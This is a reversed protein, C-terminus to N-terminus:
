RRILDYKRKLRELTRLLPETLFYLFIVSSAAHVLDVPFGTVYYSALIKWNLDSIWTIATAFNMIGGYILLTSLFGYLSINFVTRKGRGQHFIIGAGFGILGMAFMQWPTWPGQGFLMNSLFMSLAGVMFGTEGGFAVGAIIVLAAVPKFSPLMFFMSRGAVALAALVAITVLERAQPRRGEFILFFPLMMELLMLFSIFYYKRGGFYKLGVYLTLPLLIVILAGALLVRKKDSRRSIDPATYALPSLENEGRRRRLAILIFASIVMVLYLSYYQAESVGPKIFEPIAALDTMTAATVLSYFLSLWALLSLVGQWFPRKEPPRELVISQEPLSKEPVATERLEGGGAEVIDEVLFAGPVINRAIRRAATTYFSNDGFFKDPSDEAIIQGAFFLGCRDAYQACFEIDHSIILVAHGVDCLSQLIKALRNKHFIDLGKTPEDLLLIRPKRALVIALALRQQEGGSLDYPHRHLLDHLYLSSALEGVREKSNTESEAVAAFLEELVTEKVFLTQPNQPLMAMKDLVKVTGRHPHLEGAINRLLTTKGSGNGGMLAMFEGAHLQLSVGQLIDEAGEEYRFFLEEGALLLESDDNFKKYRHASVESFTNEEAFDSLWHRGEAVTVPINIPSAGPFAARIRMASPLAEALPHKRELLEYGVRRAEGESWVEGKNLVILHDTLPLIDELRHESMIITTGLERKLRSLMQLFDQAAIPDLQATPEDLLLVEPRMAMVSALNLLQKQGGSLNKIPEHYWTHIGFFSAMEAVRHRIEAPPYGLSELGFALEHWVKDTVIQEEPSQSVYGIKEAQERESSTELLHNHWLIEGTRNGHPTLISKLHRLLTTKGSGSAGCITIFDQAKLNLNINNLAKETTDPYSFSLQTIQYLAM